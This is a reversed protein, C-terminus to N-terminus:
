PVRELAASRALARVRYEEPEVAVDISRTVTEAIASVRHGAWAALRRSPREVLVHMGIALTFSTVVTLMAGIWWFSGTFHLGFLVVIPSHVLYLSFSV